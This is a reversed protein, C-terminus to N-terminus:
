INLDCAANFLVFWYHKYNFCNRWRITNTAITVSCCTRRTIFNSMATIMFPRNERWTSVSNSALKYRRSKVAPLLHNDTQFLSEDAQDFQETSCSTTQNYYNLRLLFNTWNTLTEKHLLDVSARGAPSAYVLKALCYLVFVEQISRDTMVWATRESFVYCSDLLTSVHENMSLQSSITVGQHRRSTSVNSIRYTPPEVQTSCRVVM